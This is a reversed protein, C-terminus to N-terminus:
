TELDTIVTPNNAIKFELQNCLSLMKGLKSFELSPSSRKGRALNNVFMSYSRTVGEPLPHVDAYANSVSNINQQATREDGYYDKTIAEELKKTFKFCQKSQKLAGQLGNKMNKNIGDCISKTVTFCSGIIRENKLSDESIAWYIRNLFGDDKKTDKEKNTLKGNATYHCSTFSEIKGDKLTATKLKTSGWTATDPRETDIISVIRKIKKQDNDTYQITTKDFHTGSGISTKFRDKKQFSKTKGGSSTSIKTYSDNLSNPDHEFGPKLHPFYQQLSDSGYINFSLTLLVLSSVYIIRM